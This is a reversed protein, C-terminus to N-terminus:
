RAPEYFYLQVPFGGSVVGTGDPLPIAGSDLSPLILQYDEEYEADKYWWRVVKTENPGDLVEVNRQKASVLSPAPYRHPCTVEQLTFLDQFCKQTSM